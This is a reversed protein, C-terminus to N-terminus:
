RYKLKMIHEEIRNLEREIDDLDKVLSCYTKVMACIVNGELQELVDGLRQMCRGIIGTWRSDAWRKLLLAGLCRLRVCRAKAREMIYYASSVYTTATVAVAFVTVISTAWAVRENRM